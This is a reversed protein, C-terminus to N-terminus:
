SKLSTVTEIFDTSEIETNHLGLPVQVLQKVM